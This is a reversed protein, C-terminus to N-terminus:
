NGHNIDSVFFLIKSDGLTHMRSNFWSCLSSIETPGLCSERGWGVVVWGEVNLANWVVFIFFNSRDTGVNSKLLLNVEDFDFLLKM